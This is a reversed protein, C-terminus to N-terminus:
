SEGTLLHLVEHGNPPSNFMVLFIFISPPTSPEDYSPLPEPIFSPKAVTLTVHESTAKLAAVAEDHTVNEM